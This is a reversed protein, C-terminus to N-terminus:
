IGLRLMISLTRTKATEPFPAQEYPQEEVPRAVDVMGHEYRLVVNFRRDRGFTITGGVGGTVGADTRRFFSIGEDPLPLSFDGGSRQQEFVKVAGFGGALGYPTVPGLRPLQLRLLVPLGVYGAGYRIGGERSKVLTGKQSLLLQSQVSLPGAVPVQMVVGGAVVQRTGLNGPAELTAVNLGFTLGFQPSDQAPASLPFVLLFGVLVLARRLCFLFRPM